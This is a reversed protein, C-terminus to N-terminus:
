DFPILFRIAIKLDLEDDLAGDIRRGHVIHAGHQHASLLQGFIRLHLVVNDRKALSSQLQYRNRIFVPVAIVM